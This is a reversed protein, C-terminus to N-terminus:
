RQYDQTAPRYRNLGGDTALWITGDATQHIQQVLDSSLSGPRNANHRFERYAPKQGPRLASINEVRLAGRLMTGLWLGDDQDVALDIIGLVASSDALTFHFDSLRNTLPDYCSIHNYHAIWLRGHRDETIRWSRRPGEQGGKPVFAYDQKGTAAHFRILKGEAETYVFGNKNHHLANVSHPSVLRVEGDDSVQFVGAATALWLTSEVTIVERVAHPLEPARVLM